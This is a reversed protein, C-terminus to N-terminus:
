RPLPDGKTENMSQGQAQVSFCYLAAMAALIVRVIMRRRGSPAEVHAEASAVVNQPHIEGPATAGRLLTAYAEFGEALGREICFQILGRRCLRRRSKVFRVRAMGSM